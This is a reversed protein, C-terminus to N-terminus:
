ALVGFTLVWVWPNADWGYGRKANIDDWLRSFANVASVGSLRDGAAFAGLFAGDFAKVGEALAGAETIEQVREVRVDTLELAIRSAWRPMHISPRWRYSAIESEIREPEASEHLYTMSTRSPEVRIGTHPTARYHVWRYHHDDWPDGEGYSDEVAFTERVWLWDGPQGYPLQNPTLYEWWERSATVVETCCGPNVRSRPVPWRWRGSSEIWEPQPLIVRRTQTKTGDLIARVMPGSFLIPCERVAVASM